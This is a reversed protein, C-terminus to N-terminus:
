PAGCLVANERSIVTARTIVGAPVLQATLDGSGVDETLAASVNRDIEADTLYDPFQQDSTTM